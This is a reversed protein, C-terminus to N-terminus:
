LSFGYIFFPFRMRTSFSLSRVENFEEKSFYLYYVNHSCNGLFNIFMFLLLLLKASM